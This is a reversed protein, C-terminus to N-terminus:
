PRLDPHPEVPRRWPQYGAAGDTNAAFQQALLLPSIGDENEQNVEAGHDLLLDTAASDLVARHLATDGHGDPINPDARAELLMRVIEHHGKCVAAMLPTECTHSLADVDHDRDILYQCQEIDGNACIM